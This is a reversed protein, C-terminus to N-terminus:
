TSEFFGFAVQREGHLADHNRDVSAAIRGTVRGDEVSLFYTAEGHEFFPNKGPTLRVREDSRLPPVWCPDDRYLHYPFEIFRRLQGASEVPQIAM